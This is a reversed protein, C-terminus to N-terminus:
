TGLEVVGNSWIMFRTHFRQLENEVRIRSEVVVTQVSRGDSIRRTGESRFRLLPQAGSEPAVLRRQRVLEGIILKQVAAPLMRFDDDAVSERRPAVVPEPEDKVYRVFADWDDAAIACFSCFHRNWRETKITVVDSREIRVRVDMPRERVVIRMAVERAAIPARVVFAFGSKAAVTGIAAVSSGATLLRAPFGGTRTPESTNEFWKKERPVFVDFGGM